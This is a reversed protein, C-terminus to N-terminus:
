FYRRFQLLGLLVCPLFAEYCHYQCHNGPQSVLFCFVFAFICLHSQMLSFLKHVVFSIILLTLLCGIFFAFINALGIGLLSKIDFIYFSCFWLYSLQFILFPGLQVNRWLLCVFPWCTYTFISVDSIMLSVCILVVILCRMDILIAM